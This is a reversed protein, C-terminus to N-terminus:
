IHILSLDPMPFAEAGLFGAALGGLRDDDLDALSADLSDLLLEERGQEIQHEVFKKWVGSPTWSDGAALFDQLDKLGAVNQASVVGFGGSFVLALCLCMVRNMPVKRGM